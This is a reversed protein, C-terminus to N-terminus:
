ESERLCVTDGKAEVCVIEGSKKRAILRKRDRVCESAIERVCVDSRQKRVCL